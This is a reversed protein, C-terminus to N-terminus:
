GLLLNLLKEYWPTPSPKGMIHRFVFEEKIKEIKDVMKQHEQHWLDVDQDIAQEFRRAINGQTVIPKDDQTVVPPIPIDIGELANLRVLAGLPRPVKPATHLTVELHFTHQTNLLTHQEM